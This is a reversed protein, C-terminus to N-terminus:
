ASDAALVGDRLFLVRDARNAVAPDHTIMILTRSQARVLTFLMDLVMEATDLDLSGTPEDALICRPNRSLSRAIAIRQQEGGSLLSPRSRERDALGVASLLARGTSARRRYDARPAHFLPATVNAGATRRPFLLFSQFIFGFYEGRLRAMQTDTRATVAAGDLDYGGSDAHELLGIINLLTSKGSGSRGLIALSEGPGVHLTVGRLIALRGGGPLPFSKHIDRLDIM